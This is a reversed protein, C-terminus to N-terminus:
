DDSQVQKDEVTAPFMEHAVKFVDDLNPDDDTVADAANLIDGLTEMLRASREGVTNLLNDIQGSSAMVAWSEYLEAVMSALAHVAECQRKVQEQKTITIDTM